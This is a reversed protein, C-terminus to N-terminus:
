AEIDYLTTFELPTMVHWGYKALDRNAFDRVNYTVIIAAAAIAAEVFKNDAEDLLNPRWSFQLQTQYSLAVLELVLEMNQQPTLGTLQRVAKRGLVDTYEALIPETVILPIQKALIAMLIQYALSSRHRCAGAVLVNTDLVIPPSTSNM